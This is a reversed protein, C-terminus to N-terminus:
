GGNVNMSGLSPMARGICHKGLGDLESFLSGPALKNTVASGVPINLVWKNGFREITLGAGCFHSEVKAQVGVLVEHGM